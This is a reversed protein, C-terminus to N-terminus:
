PRAFSYRPGDCRHLSLDGSTGPPVAVTCRELGDSAPGANCGVKCLGCRAPDGPRWRRTLIEGGELEVAVPRVDPPHDRDELTAPDIAELWFAGGADDPLAVAGAPVLGPSDARGLTYAVGDVEVGATPGPGPGPVRRRGLFPALALAFVSRRPLRPATPAPPNSAPRDAHLSNM